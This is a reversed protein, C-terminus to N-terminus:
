KDRDHRGVTIEWAKCCHFQRLLTSGCFSDSVIASEVLKSGQLAGMWEASVVYFGNLLSISISLEQEFLHETLVHCEDQLTRLPRHPCAACPQCLTSNKGVGYSVSALINM